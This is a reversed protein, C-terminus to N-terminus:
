ESKSKQRTEDPCSPNTFLTCLDPAQSARQRGRGRRRTPPDLHAAGPASRARPDPESPLPRSAAPSSYSPRAPPADPAPTPGPRVPLAPAPRRDPVPRRGRRETRYRARARRSCRRDRSPEGPSM